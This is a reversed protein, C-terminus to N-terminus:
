LPSDRKVAILPLAILCDHFTECADDSVIALPAGLREHPSSTAGHRGSPFSQACLLHLRLACRCELISVQLGESWAQHRPAKSRTRM